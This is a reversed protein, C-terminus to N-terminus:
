PLREDLAKLVSPHMRGAAGRLWSCDPNNECFIPVQDMDKCVHYSPVTIQIGRYPCKERTREPTAPDAGAGAARCM